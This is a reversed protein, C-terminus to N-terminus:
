DYIFEGRVEGNVVCRIQRYDLQITIQPLYGQIAETDYFGLADIGIAAMGAYILENGTKGIFQTTPILNLLSYAATDTLLNTVSIEQNNILNETQNVIANAFQHPRPSKFM